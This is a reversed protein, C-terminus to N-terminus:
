TIQRKITRNKNFIKIVSYLSVMGWTSEMIFFGAQFPNIAVYTLLISAVTNFINYTYNDANFLKWKLQHGIYALLVIFAGLISIIQQSWNTIDM